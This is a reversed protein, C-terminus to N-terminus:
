PRMPRGRKCRRTLRLAGAGSSSRASIRAQWFRSPMTMPDMFAALTRQDCLKSDQTHGGDLVAQWSNTLPEDTAATQSRLGFHFEIQAIRRGMAGDLFQHPDTTQAPRDFGCEFFGFAFDSHIVIFSTGPQSPMMMHELSKHSM